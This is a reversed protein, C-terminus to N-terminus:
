SASCLDSSQVVKAPRSNGEGPSWLAIRPTQKASNAPRCGAVVPSFSAPSGTKANKM